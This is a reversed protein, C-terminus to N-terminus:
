SLSTKRFCVVKDAFSVSSAFSLYRFRLVQARGRMQHQESAQQFPSLLSKQDSTRLREQIFRKEFPLGCIHCFIDLISYYIKALFLAKFCCNALSFPSFSLIMFGNHLVSPICVEKMM